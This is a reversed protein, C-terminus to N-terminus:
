KTTSKPLYPTTLITTANLSFEKLTDSLKSNSQFFDIKYPPQANIKVLAVLKKSKPRSLLLYPLKSSENILLELRIDQRNHLLELETIDRSDLYHTIHEILQTDMAKQDIEYSSLLEIINGRKLAINLTTFQQLTIDSADSQKYLQRITYPLWLINFSNNISQKLYLSQIAVNDYGASYINGDNIMLPIYQKLYEFLLEQTQNLQDLVQGQNFALIAPSHQNDLEQSMGRIQLANMSDSYSERYVVQSVLNFINKKNTISMIDGSHDRNSLPHTGSLLLAKANLHDFVDIGYEFTKSEYFPRPTQIMIPKSEGVKFIYIGWYKKIVAESREHLIIYHKDKAIDTYWTLTYGVPKTAYLVSKLEQKISEIDIKKDKWDDLIKYLPTLIVHDFFLLEQEIPKIYKQSGKLAIEIKKELLWSNLLGELSSISSESVFRDQGLDLKSAILYRRDEKSLYLQAFGNRMSEKQLSFDGSDRWQVQLTQLNKKLLSINFKKPMYGKIFLLSHVSENADGKMFRNYSKTGLSRVQVVSEQAYHQHFTHYYSYYNNALNAIKQGDISLPEASIALVKAESYRMLIIASELIDNTELPYPVEITLNNKSKMDIVYIGLGSYGRKQSLIMFRNELLKVDFHLSWLIDKIKEKYRLYDTDILALVESFQKLNAPTPKESKLKKYDTYLNIKQKELYLLFEEDSKLREFKSARKEANSYFSVGDPMLTLVYGISTAIIIAIFSTQLTSRTFLAMSVKDYMKVAILTSLLYGFGFYDSVKYEPFFSSILLSLAIKYFFGINFFLLVKRAGEISVRQFLPLKLIFVALFLIIYAEIFSVLIKSPQYWQLALLSPVLIGNFDWGYFLNMRSAIFATVILIIYSKPSALISGAVDEYLYGINSLSFNTYEIFFYRIIIYTIGVTVMLQILGHFLRPKWLQNAILAVIILGFSHLSDQYDLDFGYEILIYGGFWPLVWGDFLLRVAVSSLLIAFFRDRGFFNTWWGRYAPMESIMYVLQYTVVSELIIVAVSLPKILLLPVLYGPVVLGTFIWGFRLNFFGIVLIGVWVTTIVSHSLYGSPLIPLYLDFM